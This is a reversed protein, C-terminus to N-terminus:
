VCEQRGGPKCCVRRTASSAPLIAVAAPTRLYFRGPKTQPWAQSSPGRARRLIAARFSSRRHALSSQPIWYGIPLLKAAAHEHETPEPEEQSSHECGGAEADEEDSRQGEQESRAEHLGASPEAATVAIAEVLEVYRLAHVAQSAGCGMPGTFDDFSTRLLPGFDIAMASGKSQVLDSRLKPTL